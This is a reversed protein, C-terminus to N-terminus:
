RSGNQNGLERLFISSEEWRKRGHKEWTKGPVKHYQKNWAKFFEQPKSENAVAAKPSMYYYLRAAIASNLPTELFKRIEKKPVADIDVGLENKIRTKAEVMRDNKSKQIAQFAGNTVQFVGGHGVTGKDVVRFKNVNPDSGVGSEMMATFLMLNENGPIVKSIKAIADLTSDRLTFKNEYDVKKNAIQQLLGTQAPNVAEAAADSLLGRVNTMLM